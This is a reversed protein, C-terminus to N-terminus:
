SQGYSTSCRCAISSISPYALISMLSEYLLAFSFLVRQKPFEQKRFLWWASPFTVVATPLLLMTILVAKSVSGLNTAYSVDHPGRPEKKERASNFRAEPNEKSVVLTKLAPVANSTM